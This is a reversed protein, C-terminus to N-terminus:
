RLVARNVEVNRNGDATFTTRSRGALPSRDPLRFWGEMQSPTPLRDLTTGTSVEAIGYTKVTYGTAASDGEVAVVTGAASYGPRFPFKWDVMQPDKLWQHTGTYVALETGASIASTHCKILIQNPAPDNLEVERTTAAHPATIVVQTAAPM